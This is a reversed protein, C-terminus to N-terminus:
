EQEAAASGALYGSAWAWQLNYGGCIGDVDLLEGTLYLGKCLKSEMTDKHIEDLRVGGACVQANEFGNTDTISLTLKKCVSCLRKWRDVSVEGALTREKIGACKLLCVALKQHFVGVFFDAMKWDERGRKREDLFDTWQELSMSPMFDIHVEACKKEYLGRAIHRSIQFVPIGSIGYATIQLEGTDVGAEQGDIVATVKADTRVGSARSLPSDKVKLQVLAPVVPVLKHGLSKALDYGSGDSGLVSAARGGTSLIVRDCSYTKAKTKVVFGSKVPKVEQVHASYDATIGNKGLATRLVEAVAAAQGSKPYYYGNRDKPLIGLEGFFRLTDETGFQKLVHPVVNPTDSFFCDANMVENTFNCRGNGTSLIKKGLMDKHELIQVKAKPNARRAAIAATMGSAGGGIVIITSSKM